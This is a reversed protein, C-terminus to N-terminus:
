GPEIGASLMDLLQDFQEDSVVPGWRRTGAPLHRWVRLNARLDEVAAPGVKRALEFAATMPMAMSETTGGDSPSMRRVAEVVRPLDDHDGHRALASAATGVAFVDDSDLENRFADVLDADLDWGSLMLLAHFRVEADSGRLEGLLERKHSETQLSTPVRLPNAAVEAAIDPTIEFGLPSTTVVGAPAFAAAASGATEVDGSMVSDMLRLAAAEHQDIGATGLPADGFPPPFAVEVRQPDYLAVGSEFAIPGIIGVLEAVASWPLAMHVHDSGVDFEMPYESRVTGVGPLRRQMADAFAQLRRDRRLGLKWRRARGEIDQMAEDIPMARDVPWAYLDYSV